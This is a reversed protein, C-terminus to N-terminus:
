LFVGTNSDRKLLSEPRPGAVKNFFFSWCLNKRDIKHLKISTKYIKNSVEKTLFISLFECNQCRKM